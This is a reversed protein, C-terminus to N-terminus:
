GLSNTLINKSLFQCKIHELVGSSAAGNTFFKAGYEECAIAMGIVNKALAVLTYGVLGDFGSTRDTPADRRCFISSFFGM